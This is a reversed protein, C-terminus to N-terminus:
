ISLFDLLKTSASQVKNDLKGTEPDYVLKTDLTIQFIALFKELKAGSVVYKLSDPNGELKVDVVIDMGSKKASEVIEEPNNKLEINKFQTVVVLNGSEKSVTLPYDTQLITKVKAESTATIDKVIPTASPLLPKTPRPTTSPLLPKTPVPTLSINTINKVPANITNETTKTDLLNGNADYIKTEVVVKEENITKTTIYTNGNKTYTYTEASVNSVLLFSIFITTVLFTILKM